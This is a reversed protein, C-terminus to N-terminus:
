KDELYGYERLLDGAERYILELAKEDLEKRWRGVSDAHATRAVEMAREYGRITYEELFLLLKKVVASPQQVLEEYRVTNFDSPSLMKELEKGKEVHRKWVWICRHLDTTCIYEDVREREIYFHPYPGYLYGGPERKQSGASSEVHWPKKLLSCAVDRGDRIVHIFKADPFVRKLTEAVFINRPTKDVLRQGDRPALALLSMYLLKYFAKAQWLSVRDQYVLRAFYKGIPPEYYYAVSPLANLIRGLFTTGSRPSGIIFIPGSIRTTLLRWVMKPVSTNLSRPNNERAQAITARWKAIFPLPGLEIVWAKDAKV